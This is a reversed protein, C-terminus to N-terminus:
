LDAGRIFFAQCLKKAYYTYNDVINAVDSPMNIILLKVSDVIVDVIGLLKKFM